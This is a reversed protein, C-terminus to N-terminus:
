LPEGTPGGTPTLLPSAIMLPTHCEFQEAMDTVHLGVDVVGSIMPAFTFEGVSGPNVPVTQGDSIIATIAMVPGKSPEINVTFYITVPQGQTMSGGFQMSCTGGGTPAPPPPAPAPPPPPAGSMCPGTAPCDIDSSCSTGPSGMCYGSGSPPPPSPPPPQTCSNALQDRLQQNEAELGAITNLDESHQASLNSMTENQSVIQANLGSIEENLATIKGNAEQLAAAAQALRRTLDDNASLAANLQETLTAVQDKLGTVQLLLATVQGKLDAVQQRLSERDSSCTNLQGPCSISAATPPSLVAWAEGALALGALASVVAALSIRSASNM